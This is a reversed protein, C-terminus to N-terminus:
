TIKTMLDDISKKISKEFEVFTSDVYEDLTLNRSSKAISADLTRKIEEISEIENFDTKSVYEDIFNKM